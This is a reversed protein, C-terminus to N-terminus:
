FISPFGFINPLLNFAATTRWCHAEPTAIDFSNFAFSRSGYEVKISYGTISYVTFM